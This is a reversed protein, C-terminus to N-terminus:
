WTCILKPTIFLRVAYLHPEDREQYHVTIRLWMLSLVQIATAVMGTVGGSLTKKGVLGLIDGIAPKLNKLTM